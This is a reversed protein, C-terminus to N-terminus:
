PAIEELTDPGIQHAHRALFMAEAITAARLATEDWDDLGRAKASACGVLTAHHRAEERRDPNATM